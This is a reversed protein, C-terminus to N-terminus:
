KHKLPVKPKFVGFRIIGGFERDALKHAYERLKEPSRHTAKPCLPDDVRWKGDSEDPHIGICHDGDFQSMCGVDFTDSDGQLAIYYGLNRWTRLEDWGALVLLDVGLRNCALDLDPLSWGPTTPNTEQSKPVQALVTDPSPHKAGGTAAMIGNAGTTWTCGERKTRASNRVANQKKHRNHYHKGYLDAATM